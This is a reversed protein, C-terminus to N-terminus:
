GISAAVLGSVLIMGPSIIQVITKKRIVNQTSFRYANPGIWFTM